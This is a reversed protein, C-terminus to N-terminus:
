GHRPLRNLGDAAQRVASMRAIAAEDVPIADLTPGDAIGWRAALSISPEGTLAAAAQAAAGWAVLEDCRPVRVTRGSLKRVTEQWVRGRAGGGILTLPADDALGSSAASLAPLGELLSLVVAEYTALLIEPGSTDIDLGTITGTAHPHNPLREGGFYPMVVARTQPAVAERDLDFLAAVRDVALTANLTCGLPLFDGSASAQVTLSGTPDASATKSRAYVTGSTGLSMVPEGVDVALALAAAMNDGTGCAVLTGPRMGTAESATPTVEGAIADPALVTPLLTPDLDVQDLALVAEDYAERQVSWWGTASADGRDTVGRGSLRETLFDHPLRVAAARRATDPEHRRVWAWSAVTLGPRLVSCMRDVWPGVGGLGQMLLAAETDSRTDDWLIAPRLPRGGTDLVVLSLQQAAVSISAVEATCGTAALAQQLAQWWHEPDTESRPGDKHVHHPARGSAVRTGDDTDVVVVKTSQTSCDVGAVLRRHRTM